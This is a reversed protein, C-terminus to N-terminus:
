HLKENRKQNGFIGLATLLAVGIAVWVGVSM